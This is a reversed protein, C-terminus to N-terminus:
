IVTHIPYSFHSAAPLEKFKLIKGYDPSHPNQKASPLLAVQPNGEPIGLAVQPCSVQCVDKLTQM